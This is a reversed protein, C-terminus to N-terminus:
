RSFACIRRSRRRLPTPRRKACPRTPDQFLNLAPELTLDEGDVNFRLSAITEDFLRNWAAHGTVSKEHFLQEIRDELQFPKEKRLDELWPRYHSLPAQAM